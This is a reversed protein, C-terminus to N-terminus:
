ENRPSVGASAGVGSRFERWRMRGSSEPSLPPTRMGTGHHLGDLLELVTQETTSSAHWDLEDHARGSDMIPSLMGMDLWGPSTPQLRLKWSAWTAGRVLGAPLEVARAQLLCRLV